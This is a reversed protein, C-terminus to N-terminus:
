TDMRPSRPCANMGTGLCAIAESTTSQSVAIVNRSRIQDSGVTGTQEQAANGRWGDLALRELSKEESRGEEEEVEVM